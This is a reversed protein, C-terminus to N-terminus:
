GRNMYRLLRNNLEEAANFGMRKQRYNRAAVEIITAMNRGPKVPVTTKYIKIGLIEVFEDDLGLRDYYKDSDWNELEIVMNLEKYDRVAGVGYLQVIDLIGIGRIEMFHKTLQPAIGHLTNEDKKKIEVADDAILRHGRKILELATESKGIGSEGILLVGIGYVDVFVGHRTIVLALKDDLYNTLETIFKTTLCDTRLLPRNFKKAADLLEDHVDLGRTIIFCPIPHSLLEYARRKRVQPALSAFYTWEVKGMVQVREYAFYKYFGALQLGPRNVESIDITIGIKEPKHIIELQLDEVLQDISVSTM